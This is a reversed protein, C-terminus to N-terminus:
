MVAGGSFSHHYFHSIDVIFLTLALTDSRPWVSICGLRAPRVLNESGSPLFKSNKLRIM